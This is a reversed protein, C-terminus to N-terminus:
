WSGCNLRIGTAAISPTAALLRRCAYGHRSGHAAVPREGQDQRGPQRQPHEGLDCVARRQEVNVRGLVQHTRSAGRGLTVLDQQPQENRHAPEGQDRHDLVGEAQGHRDSHVRQQDPVAHRAPGGREGCRRYQEVRVLELKLLGDHRVHQELGHDRGAQHQQQPGPWRPLLTQPRDRRAREHEAGGGGDALDAPDEDQGGHGEGQQGPRAPPAARFPGCQGHGTEHQRDEAVHGRRVEDGPVEPQGAVPRSRLVPPCRRGGVASGQRDGGVLACQARRGGAHQGQAADVPQEVVRLRGPMGHRHRGAGGVRSQEGAERPGDKALLRQPHCRRNGPIGHPQERQGPVTVRLDGVDRAPLELGDVRRVRAPVRQGGEGPQGALVAAATVQHRDLGGSGHQAVVLQAAGVCGARQVRDAQGGPQESREAAQGPM